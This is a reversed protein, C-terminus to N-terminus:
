RYISRDSILRDLDILVDHEAALSITGDEIRSQESPDLDRVGGLGVNRPDLGVGLGFDWSELSAGVALGGLHGTTTNNPTNLDARVGSWM